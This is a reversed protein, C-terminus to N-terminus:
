GDYCGCAQELHSEPYDFMDQQKLLDAWAWRRGLGKVTQLNEAANQEMAVARLALEPYDAQLQFIESKKSAPCFFCASKGPQPLGARAIAEICEERGWGWEVLPYSVQYKESTYDKIRHHEDADYGILKEVQGGEAWVALCGAHNNLFKEQPQVKFRQSCTKFGFALSPLSKRDICDKELKVVSKVTEVLPFGIQELWQNVQMLHRYTHPKEAGTDAFMVLDPRIGREHLGVLMATSNTGGGYSVVKM